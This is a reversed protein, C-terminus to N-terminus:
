IQGHSVHEDACSEHGNAQDFVATQAASGCSFQLRVCAFHNMLSLFCLVALVPDCTRFVNFLQKRAVLSM